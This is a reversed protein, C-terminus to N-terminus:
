DDKFVMLENIQIRKAAQNIFEDAKELLWENTQDGQRPKWYALLQQMSRLQSLCNNMKEARTKFTESM